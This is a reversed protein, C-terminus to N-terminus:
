DDAPTEASTGLQNEKWEARAKIERRGRRTPVYANTRRDKQHKEVLGKDVLEDLNPYLRGANIDSEYYEELEDMVALGKPEDLGQIVYLCDRQFATLDFMRYLILAM